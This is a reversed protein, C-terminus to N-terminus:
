RLPGDHLVRPRWSSVVAICSADAYATGTKNRCETGSASRGKCAGNTSWRTLTCYSPSESNTPTKNWTVQFPGKPLCNQTSHNM